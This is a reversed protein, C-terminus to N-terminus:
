GHWPVGKILLLIVYCFLGGEATFWADAKEVKHSDKHYWDWLREKAWGVFAAAVIGWAPTLIYGYLLAFPAVAFYFVVFTILGAILHKIKDPAIVMGADGSEKEALGM